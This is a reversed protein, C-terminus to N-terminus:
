ALKPLCFIINHSKGMYGKIQYKDLLEFLKFRPKNDDAISVQMYQENPYKAQGVCTGVTKMICEAQEPSVKVANVGSIQKEGLGHIWVIFALKKSMKGRIRKIKCSGKMGYGPAIVPM